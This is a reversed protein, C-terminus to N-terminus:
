LRFISVALFIAYHHSSTTGISTELCGKVMQVTGFFILSTIIVYILGIALFTLVTFPFVFPCSIKAGALILTFGSKLIAKVILIRFVTEFKFALHTIHIAM